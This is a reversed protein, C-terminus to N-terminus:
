AYEDVSNGREPDDDRDTEDRPREPRDTERDREVERPERPERPRETERSQGVDLPRFPDLYDISM